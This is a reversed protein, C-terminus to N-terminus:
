KILYWTPLSFIRNRPLVVEPRIFGTDKIFVLKEFLAIDMLSGRNLFFQSEHMIICSDNNADPGWDECLKGEFSRLILDDGNISYSYTMTDNQYGYGYATTDILNLLDDVVEWKGYIDDEGNFLHEMYSGDAYLNYNRTVFDISFIPIYTPTNARVFIMSPSLNGNILITDGTTSFLEVNSFNANFNVWDFSVDNSSGVFFENENDNLIIFLNILDGAFSLLYFPYDGGAYYEQLSQNTILIVEGDTSIYKLEAQFDGTINISGIGESLIDWTSQDSNTILSYEPNESILVWKGVLEEPHSVIIEPIEDKKCASIFFVILLLLGSILLNTNKM